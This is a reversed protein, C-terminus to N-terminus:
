RSRRLVISRNDDVEVVIKDGKKWGLRRVIERPISTTYQAVRGGKPLDHTKMQLRVTPVLYRGRWPEKFSDAHLAPESPYECAM